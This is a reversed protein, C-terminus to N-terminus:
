FQFLRQFKRGFKKCSDRYIEKAEEHFYAAKSLRDKVLYVRDDFSALRLDVYLHKAKGSETDVRVVNYLRLAAGDKDVWGDQRALRRIVKDMYSETARKLGRDHEFLGGDICYSRLEEVTEEGTVKDILIQQFLEERTVIASM